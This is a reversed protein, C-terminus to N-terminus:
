QTKIHVHIFKINSHGLIFAVIEFTLWAVAINRVCM